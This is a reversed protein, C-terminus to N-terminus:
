LARWNTDIPLVADYIMPKYSAVCGWMSIRM